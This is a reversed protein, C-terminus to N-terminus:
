VFSHEFPNHHPSTVVKVHPRPLLVANERYEKQKEERYEEDLLTNVHLLFNMVWERNREELPSVSHIARVM